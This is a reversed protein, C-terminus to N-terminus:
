HTTMQLTPSQLITSRATYITIYINNMRIDDLSYLAIIANISIKSCKRYSSDYYRRRIDYWLWIYIHFVDYRM